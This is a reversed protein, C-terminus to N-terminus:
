RWSEEVRAPKDASVTVPISKEIALDKNVLRLRHQGVRVRISLPTPGVSKNDLWVEAYPDVSVVLDGTAV